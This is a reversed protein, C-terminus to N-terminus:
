RQEVAVVAVSKAPLDFALKGGDSTGEYAVPHITNPAEFTNHTDMKPGTLIRGRATGTMGTVIHAPEDPNLNVLALYLTGDGAKAASADVMPLDIDGHKYRPTDIDVPYPTAGQFVKYMDFVHYTPTLVMQDGKTLIMAQLVNVMQAIAALKVRDSHRHFINLTLAAVEADRLSNQQYLFGPHSGPEQDYWTGWEDVYLGVRKEPDYKDMIASHKTILEDMHRANKLTSAWADETFGTAAGKNEWSGPFTYYHLSLADMMRGATKMMAETWHYDDVNAGSAVKTIPPSDGAKWVFTAYRRHMEAAFEATMNGGCGWTENGVGFYKLNTWPKDRGNERRMDALTSDGAFTMYEIWQQMDHPTMSGMNGAVYADAGVLETYNMFENTGFSNDYTVGGWTVNVRVPRKDRPGIGDRWDYQDAFCGGPWRIVPPNLKRIAQMVDNRYGDTNPIKSDPGVWVGGYIGRGLDEAFQGQVAPDITAGPRATDISVSAREQAYLPATLALVGALSMGAHKLLKM